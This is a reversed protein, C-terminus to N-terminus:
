SPSGSARASLWSSRVHDIVHQGPPASVRVLGAPLDAEGVMAQFVQWERYKRQTRASAGFDTHSWHAFEDEDLHKLEVCSWEPLVIHRARENWLPLEWDLAKAFTYGPGNPWGWPESNHLETDVFAEREDRVYLSHRPVRIVVETAELQWALDRLVAVANDNLVMDGDWKLAYATRVHSFSWNYFHTLSHVSTAPTALHEPGCRAIAFPYDLVELRDAAAEAAALQRAVAPTDDSSGNDVMVVRRVARLLSPLVWPLSRAENRVRLVATLGPELASSAWAWRVDYAAHGERNKILAGPTTSAVPTNEVDVVSGPSEAHM